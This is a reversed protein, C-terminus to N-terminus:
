HQPQTYFELNPIIKGWSHFVNSRPRWIELTATSFDSVMGIGSVKYRIKLIKKKDYLTLIECHHAQHTSRNTDVKALMRYTM